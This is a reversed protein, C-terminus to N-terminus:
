TQPRHPRNMETHCRTTPPAPPDPPSWPCHASFGLRRQAPCHVHETEGAKGTGMGTGVLRRTSPPRIQVM